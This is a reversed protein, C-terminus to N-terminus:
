TADIRSQADNWVYAQICGCNRYVTGVSITSMSSNKSRSRPKQPQQLVLAVQMVRQPHCKVANVLSVIIPCWGRGSCHCRRVGRVDLAVNAQCDCMTSDRKEVSM